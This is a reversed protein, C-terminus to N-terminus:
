PASPFVILQPAGNPDLGVEDCATFDTVSFYFFSDVPVENAPIDLFIRNGDVMGKFESGPPAHWGGQAPDFVHLEPHLTPPFYQFSFNTNGKGEFFWSELPDSVPLSPDRFEIGGFLGGTLVDVGGIEFYVHLMEPMFEAHVMTIDVGPPTDGPLPEGNVCNFGDNVPDEMTVVTPLPTATPVPTDTPPAPTNTSPVPTNTPPPIPTPTPEDADTTSCALITILLFAPMLMIKWINSNRDPM